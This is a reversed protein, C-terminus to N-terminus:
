EAEYDVEELGVLELIRNALLEAAAIPVRKEAGASFLGGAQVQYAGILDGLLRGSNGDTLQSRLICVAAGGGFGLWRGGVSGPQYFVMRTKIVLRQPVSGGPDVMTMGSQALKQQLAQTAKGAADLDYRKGTDDLVHHFEVQRVGLFSADPALWEVLGDNIGAHAVGNFLATLLLLRFLARIM